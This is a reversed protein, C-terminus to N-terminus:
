HARLPGPSGQVGMDVGPAFLQRNTGIPADTVKYRPADSGFRAMSGDPVSGNSLLAAHFVNNSIKFGDVAM